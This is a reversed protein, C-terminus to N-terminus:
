AIESATLSRITTVIAASQEQDFIGSVGAPHQDTFPKEWLKAPDIRGKECLWDVIQEIFHLQDATAPKGLANSIASNLATAVADREMGVVSRVYGPLGGEDSMLASIQESDGLGAEILMDEISRLDIDTLPVGRRLKQLAIHDKHTRLYTETKLRFQRFSNADRLAELEVERAEGIQDLFNTTLQKRGEKDILRVLGRLRRRVHEIMQPTVDDWFESTRIEQILELEAAVQSISTKQELRAAIDQMRKKQSTVNDKKLLALQTQLCLLDFRKADVDTDTVTTPLAAVRDVLELRDAQTLHKWVEENQFREVSRRETRVIFNDLNMGFVDSKLQSRVAELLLEPAGELGEGDEHMGGNRPQPQMLGVAEVRAEFLREQLSKGASAERRAVDSNFFEFNELFDFVLFDEKHDGPAFLDPCLRTGRGIMQWFKSKSRVIKFFVLNAIEPVDIGTDLMDVSVAIQLGSDPNKFDDVLTDAYNISYDIQRCVKGALAPYHYNFREVILAAHKASKAFIITKAIREGDDVYYGNQMLHQLAKDITDINFLWDNVASASIDDPPGDEGWELADWAEKDQESLDDYKIGERPFKIPVDIAKPPVLWRDKVAEALTYADTPVGDEQHFLEYTNRDIEDVPTATLGVLYSDFYDFISKYKRYVSRHAEDIIVLDFAGPGFRRVGDNMDRDILNLMTPYTSVYVRGYHDREKLLNVTKVDPLHQNFANAAQKVLEKRDALFLVTKVWGARMLLDVLAISMRTKGSGTAMVLLAERQKETEFRECVRRIAREQYTRGHGGAIDRNIDVSSLERANSRRQILLSLEDENFFGQVERPPHTTDDWFWHDYGNTYFILPRVGFQRELCDAYLEAQRQGVNSDVTTKKAEVLGLPTGDAGWLVYDVYGFGTQNPMGTVEFERDRTQDLPWGAEKLLVDILDHRTRAENYDHTESRDNAAAKIEAIEDRLRKLEADYEARVEESKRHAEEVSKKHEDRLKEHEKVLDHARKLTTRDILQKRPLMAPDFKLPGPAHRAYNHALWWAIHFLEGVAKEADGDAFKGRHAALNGIKRVLHLKNLITHGVVRKFSPENILANLNDNYPYRISRDAKYLWDVMSEAALRCSLASGRPDAIATAEARVAHEHFETFEAAFAFQSM